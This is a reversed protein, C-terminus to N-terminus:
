DYRKVMKVCVLDTELRVAFDLEEKIDPKKEDIVTVQIFVQRIDGSDIAFHLNAANEAVVKKKKSGNYDEIERILKDKDLFYHIRDKKTLDSFSTHFFVIEEGGNEPKKDMDYITVLNPFLDNIKEGQFMLNGKKDVKVVPNVQKLDTFFQKMVIQVRQNFEMHQQGWKWTTLNSRFLTILVLSILAIIFTSVSLELLTFGNKKSKKKIM